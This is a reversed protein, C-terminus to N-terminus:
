AVRLCLRWHLHVGGSLCLPVLLHLEHISQLASQKILDLFMIYRFPATDLYDQYLGKKWNLTVYASCKARSCLSIEWDKGLRWSRYLSVMAYYPVRRTIKSMWAQDNVLTFERRRWDWHRAIVANQLAGCFFLYFKYKILGDLPRM